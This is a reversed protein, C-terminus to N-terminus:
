RDFVGIARKEKELITVSSEELLQKKHNYHISSTAAILTGSLQAYALSPRYVHASAPGSTVRRHISQCHSQRVPIKTNDEPHASPFTTGVYRFLHRVYLDFLPRRWKTAKCNLTMGALFAALFTAALPSLALFPFSLRPPAAAFDLSELSCIITGGSRIGSGKETMTMTALRAKHSQTESNGASDIVRISALALLFSRMSRM